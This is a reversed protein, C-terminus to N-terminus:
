THSRYQKDYETTDEFDAENPTLALKENVLGILFVM